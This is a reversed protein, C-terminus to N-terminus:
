FCTVTLITELRCIFTLHLSRPKWERSHCDSGGRLEQSTLDKWLVSWGDPLCLPMEFVCRGTPCRYDSDCQCSIPKLEKDQWVGWVVVHGKSFTNLTSNQTVLWFSEEDLIIIKILSIVCTM